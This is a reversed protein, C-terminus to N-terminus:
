TPDPARECTRQRATRPGFVVAARPVSVPIGHTWIEAALLWRPPNSTATFALPGPLSARDTSLIAPLHSHGLARAANSPGMRVLRTLRVLGANGV